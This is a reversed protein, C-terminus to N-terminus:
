GVGAWQFSEATGSGVDSRLHLLVESLREVPVNFRILIAEFQHHVVKVGAVWSHIVPHGAMADKHKLHMSRVVQTIVEPAVLGSSPLRNDLQRHHIVQVDWRVDKIQNGALLSGLGIARILRVLALLVSHVRQAGHERRSLSGPSKSCLEHGGEGQEKRIFVHLPDPLVIDGGRRKTSAVSHLGDIGFIAWVPAVQAVKLCHAVDDLAYM